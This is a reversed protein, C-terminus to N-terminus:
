TQAEADSANANAVIAGRVYAALEPEVKDYSAAFRPDAVYMEGLAPADRALLPLVLPRHAPSDAGGGSARALRGGAPRLAEARRVAAEYEIAGTLM